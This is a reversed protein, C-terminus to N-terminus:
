VSSPHRKKDKSELRTGFSSGKSITSGSTQLCPRATPALNDETEQEPLLRMDSLVHPFAPTLISVYGTCFRPKTGVGLVGLNTHAQM